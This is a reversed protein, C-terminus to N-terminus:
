RKTLSKRLRFKLKTSFLIRPVVKISAELSKGIQPRPKLTQHTFLIFKLIYKLGPKAEGGEIMRARLRM